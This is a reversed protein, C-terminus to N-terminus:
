LCNHCANLQGGVFWKYFPASSEDLVADWPAAWDLLEHAQSAWWGRFDHEAEDYVSADRILAQDRFERSPEFREM